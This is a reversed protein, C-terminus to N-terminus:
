KKAVKQNLLKEMESITLNKGVIRGTKNILVTSPISNVAYARSGECKWGKLDSVLKWTINHSKVTQKWANQDDDLSVGLIQLQSGKYKKYFAQLDPLFQICPGCWSAWFDVLVPKDSQLVIEEFNADTVEITM